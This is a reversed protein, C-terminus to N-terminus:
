AHLAQEIVALLENHRYPKHIFWTTPSDKFAAMAQNQGYGSTLVAKIDPSTARVQKLVADGNHVPLTIDILLLDINQRHAHYTNLAQAGDEASITRYGHHQLVTEVMERVLPEDEVILITRDAPHSSNATVSSKCSKHTAPFYVRFRTGEGPDSQVQIAGRHSNVIGIVAALGLGRGAFKTTFFPEFIHRRDSPPIGQGNDEVSLCVWGDPHDLDLNNFDTVLEHVDRVAETKVWIRGTKKSVAESANTILNMVVQLLQGRDAMVPALGESLDCAMEVGKPVSLQLLQMTEKILQNIDVADPDLPQKGAYALLQTTLDAARQSSVMINTLHKNIQPEGASLNTALEANGMIASLLNNFDHAVGGALLGLSELRQAQQLSLESRKRSTIDRCITHTMGLPKDEDQFLSSHISLWIVSEDKAIARAEVNEFRGNEDFQQKLITRLQNRDDPHLFNCASKGIIEVKEYGLM